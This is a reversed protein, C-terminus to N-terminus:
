DNGSGGLREGGTAGLDKYATKRESVGTAYPALWRDLMRGMEASQRNVAFIARPIRSELQMSISQAVLMFACGSLRLAPTIYVSDYLVTDNAIRYTICWGVTVGGMRLGLSNSELPLNPKFPSLFAPYLHGELRRLRVREEARLEHWYFSEMGGPMATKRIWSAAAISADTQYVKGETAPESWGERHLLAELAPTIAKGSYYVLILKPCRKAQLLIEAQRLLETAIGRRRFKAAVFLSVVEADRGDEPCHLVLLGAAEPKGAEETWEAGVAFGTGSDDLRKLLSRAYSFTLSAYPTSGAADLRKVIFM